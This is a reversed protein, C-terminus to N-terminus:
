ASNPRLPRGIVPNAPQDVRSTAPRMSRERAARPTPPVFYFTDGQPWTFPHSPPSVSRCPHRHRARVPLLSEPVSVLYNAGTSAQRVFVAGGPKVGAPITIRIPPPPMDQM